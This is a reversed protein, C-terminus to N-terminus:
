FWEDMEMLTMIGDEIGLEIEKRIEPMDSAKVEGAAILFQYFKKLSTGAKKIASESIWINKRAGWSFFDSIISFTSVALDFGYFILYNNLYDEVNALHRNVTKKTLKESQELYHQFATLILRNNALAAEFDDETFDTVNYDSLSRWNREVVYEKEVEEQSVEHLVLPENFAAKLTDLSCEEKYFSNALYLSTKTDILTTFDFRSHYEMSAVMNNMVGNVVRNYGANVEIRGALDLYEEIKKSPIEAAHFVETIAEPIIENLQKKLKADIGILVLPFYTLDNVLLLIKKRRVNFYNAHWSFLSNNSSFDRAIKKDSVESLYSFLPLAKKTPNIIM